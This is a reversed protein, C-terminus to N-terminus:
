LSFVGPSAIEYLTKLVADFLPGSSLPFTPNEQISKRPDM